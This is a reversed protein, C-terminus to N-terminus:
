ESGRKGRAALKYDGAEVRPKYNCTLFPSITFPASGHCENQRGVLVPASIRPGLISRSSRRPTELLAEYHALVFWHIV